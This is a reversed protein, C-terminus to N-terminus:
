TFFMVDMDHHCAEQIMLLQLLPKSHGDRNMMEAVQFKDLDNGCRDVFTHARDVEM